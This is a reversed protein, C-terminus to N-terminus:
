EDDDRGAARLAERSALTGPVLTDVWIESMDQGDNVRRIMLYVLTSAAFYASIAASLALLPPLDSWFGIAGAAFKASWGSQAPDALAAATEASLLASTAARTVWLTASVALGAGIAVIALQAFGLALYVALRMPRNLVYAFVRQLADITDTSECAVAPLLLPKGLAFVFAILVVLAGVLLGLGYIAGGIPKTFGFSLLLWGGIALVGVGCAAAIIPVLMSLSLHRLRAMAFGVAAPWRMVVGHAADCAFMRCLAGGLLSWVVLWPVLVAASSFPSTTIAEAPHTLAAAALAAGVGSFDLVFLSTAAKALASAIREPLLVLPADAALWLTPLRWIVITVVALLFALWLREPKLAMGPVRALAPWILDRVLDDFSWARRPKWAPPVHRAPVHEVSNPTSRPVAHGAGAGAGAGSGSGPGTQGIGTPGAAASSSSSNTTEPM